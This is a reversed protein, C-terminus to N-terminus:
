EKVFKLLRERDESIFKCLELFEGLSMDNKVRNIFLTAWVINNKVYGKKPDLKDISPMYKHPSNGKETKLKFNLEKNTYFCKNNQVELQAILDETTLNFDIKQRIARSKLSVVLKKCYLKPENRRQLDYVRSRKKDCIKCRSSLGFHKFNNESDKYTRKVYFNESDTSKVQQCNFCKRLGQPHYYYRNILRKETNNPNIKHLFDKVIEPKFNANEELYYIKKM